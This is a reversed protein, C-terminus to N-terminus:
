SPYSGHSLLCNENILEDGEHTEKYLRANGYDSIFDNYIDRALKYSKVYEDKENTFIHYITM